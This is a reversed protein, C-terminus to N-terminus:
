EVLGANWVCKRVIELERSSSVIGIHTDVTQTRKNSGPVLLKSQVLKETALVVGDKARIALATGSIEVAKLAYEIQFIRGDPSYTSVSLDY